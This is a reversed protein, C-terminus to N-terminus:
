CHAVAAFILCKYAFITTNKAHLEMGLVAVWKSLCVSCSQLNVVMIINFHSRFITMTFFCNISMHLVTFVQSSTDHIKNQSKTM